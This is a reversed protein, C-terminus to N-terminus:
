CCASFACTPRCFSLKQEPNYRRLSVNCSQYTFIVMVTFFYCCFLLSGCWNRKNILTLHHPSLILIINMNNMYWHIIYLAFNTDSLNITCTQILILDSYLVTYLMNYCINYVKLKCQSLTNLTNLSFRM